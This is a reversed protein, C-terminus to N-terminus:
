CGYGILGSAICRVTSEVHPVSSLNLSQATKFWEVLELFAVALASPGDQVRANVAPSPTSAPGNSATQM